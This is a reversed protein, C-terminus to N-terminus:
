RYETRSHSNRGYEAANGKEKAVQSNVSNSASRYALYDEIKGSAAFTNWAEQPTIM